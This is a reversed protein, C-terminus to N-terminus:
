EEKKPAESKAEAGGEGPPPKVVLTKRSRKRLPAIGFQLLHESKSGLRIKVFGQLKRKAERGRDVTEQLKQTAAMRKGELDEQNLKMDKAEQLIAVLGDRFEGIDPLLGENRTCAGILAEWDRFVDAYATLTPM